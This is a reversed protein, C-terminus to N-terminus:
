ERMIGERREVSSLFERITSIYTSEQELHHSHSADEFIVMRSGPLMHHYYKTTDPSSEDYRGCTFLVPVSIKVLDFVREYTSMTGMTTFESPGWMYEYVELDFREMSIELCKPWPNLRCIHRMFFVKMAEQFEHTHVEGTAEGHEIVDRTEQPLAAIHSLQDNHWRSVSLCPSSLTLSQVGLPIKTLLYDVALMTGWSHGLIHVKDLDLKNRVSGLEHTYYDLSYRTVDDFKQSNGCGLQDYWIVPRDSALTKLPILYEHPFGPGGHLILLPIGPRAGGDIRFWINRGDVQLFGERSDGMM